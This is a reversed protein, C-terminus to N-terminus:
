IIKEARPDREFDSSVLGTQITEVSCLNTGLNLQNMARLWFTKKNLRLLHM